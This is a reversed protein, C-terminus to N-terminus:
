LATHRLAKFLNTKSFFMKEYTTADKMTHFFSMPVYSKRRKRMISNYKEM